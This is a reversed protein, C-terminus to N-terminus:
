YVEHVEPRLHIKPEVCKRATRFLSIFSQGPWDGAHEDFKTCLIQPIDMDMDKKLYTVQPSIYDHWFCKTVLPSVLDKPHRHPDFSPLGTLLELLIQVTCMM